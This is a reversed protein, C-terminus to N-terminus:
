YGPVSPDIERAWADIGGQLNAVRGFGQRALFEAARQSRGGLKCMVIIELNGDLEALRGPIENLPISLCGPISALALEWPERVDLLCFSEGADRKAKLGAVTIQTVGAM